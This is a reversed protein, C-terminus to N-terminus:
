TPTSRLYRSPSSSHNRRSTAPSGSNSFQGRSRSLPRDAHKTLGDAVQWDASVHMRGESGGASQRRRRRAPSFTSTSSPVFSNSGEPVVSEVNFLSWECTGKTGVSTEVDLKKPASIIPLIPNAGPFTYLAVASTSTGKGLTVGSEGSRKSTQKASASKSKASQASKAGEEVSHSHPISIGSFMLLDAKAEQKKKEVEVKEKRRKVKKRKPQSKRPVVSAKKARDAQSLRRSAM